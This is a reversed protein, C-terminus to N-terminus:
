KLIGLFDFMPFHSKSSSSSLIGNSEFMMLLGRAQRYSIGTEKIHFERAFFTSEASLWRPTSHSDWHHRARDADGNRFGRDGCM